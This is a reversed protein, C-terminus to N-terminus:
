ICRKLPRKSAIYKLSDQGDCTKCDDQDVTNVMRYLFFGGGDGEALLCADRFRWLLGDAWGSQATLSV